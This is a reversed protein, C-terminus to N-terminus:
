RAAGDQTVAVVITEGAVKAAVLARAAEASYAYVTFIPRGNQIVVIPKTTRMAQEPQLGSLARAEVKLWREHICPFWIQARLILKGTLSRPKPPSVILFRNSRCGTVTGSCGIRPIARYARNM